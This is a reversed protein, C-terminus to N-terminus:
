KRPPALPGSYNVLTTAISKHLDYKDISLGYQEEIARVIEGLKDDLLVGKPGKAYRIQGVPISHDKLAFPGNAVTEFRKPPTDSGIYKLFLKCCKKGDSIATGTTTPLSFMERSDKVVISFNVDDTVIESMTPLTNPDENAIFSASKPAGGAHQAVHSHGKNAGGNRGVFRKSM